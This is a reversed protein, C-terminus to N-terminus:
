RMKISRKVAPLKNIIMFLNCVKMEKKKGLLQLLEQESMPQSSNDILNCVIFIPLIEACGWVVNHM